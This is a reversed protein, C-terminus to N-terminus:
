LNFELIRVSAVVCVGQVNRKFPCWQVNEEACAKRTLNYIFANRMKVYAVSYPAGGVGKPSTMIIQSSYLNRHEAKHM